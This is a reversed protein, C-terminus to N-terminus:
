RSRRWIIQNLILWGALISLSILSVGNAITRLRTDTFRAIVTHKGIPVFFTMLGRYKQNQFEIHVEKDDVLIHWGPFYVTNEILLTNKKAQVMYTHETTTRNQEEITAIGDIVELHSTSRHEMFRVSWIPSSEGTDTTGDYVGGYFVEPKTSFARAHWYTSNCLLLLVGVAIIIGKQWKRPLMHCVVAGITAAIFVSVSLFRWPFQFKSLLHITGWIFSSNLTMIWLSGLFMCLLLVLFLKTARAKKKVLLIAPIAAGVMLWQVIGIQKSLTDTGGYNWAGYLFDKWSVFRSVYDDATVIDRLTYKGEFFAPIWFFAALGFGLLGVLSYHFILQQRKKSQWLLYGAYIAIIPIFMLSIANHALILGALSFAGGAMYWWYNSEKNSLKAMKLLFLLVLPPFIFAVHEGIAGRIYLDVFRYPAITYLLSGVVAANKDAEEKLWLFMTLGSILYSCAFVLKLSDVSSFSLLKFLSAFYSPLPYLFMLIPHGYGWNLNGAWRPILIGQQLNEYFNAIRAVHDQGDHTIPLGPHILDLLPVSVVLLIIIYPLWATSLNLKRSM